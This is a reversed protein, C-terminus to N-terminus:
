HRRRLFFWYVLVGLVGLSVFPRSDTEERNYSGSLFNEPAERSLVGAQYGQTAPAIAGIKFGILENSQKTLAISQTDIFDSAIKREREIDSIISSKQENLKQAVLDDLTAM